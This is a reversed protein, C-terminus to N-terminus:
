IRTLLQTEFLNRSSDYVPPSSLCLDVPVIKSNDVFFKINQPVNSPCVTKMQPSVTMWHQVAVYM